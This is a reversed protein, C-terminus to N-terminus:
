HIDGALPSACPGVELTGCATMQIGYRVALQRKLLQTGLSCQKGVHLVSGARDCCTALSCTRDSILSVTAPSYM